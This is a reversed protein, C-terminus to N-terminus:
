ILKIYIKWNLTSLWQLFINTEDIFIHSFLDSISNLTETVIGGRNVILYWILFIKYSSFLISFSIMKKPLSQTMQKLLIDFSGDGLYNSYHRFFSFIKLFYYFKSWSYLGLSFKQLYPLKQSSFIENFNTKTLQATVYSLFVNLEILKKQTLIIKGM